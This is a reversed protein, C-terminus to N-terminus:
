KTTISQLSIEGSSLIHTHDNEVVVLEGTETIRKAIGTHTIGKQVFTVKKGLVLSRRRYEELYDSQEFNNTISFFENIVAAILTNRNILSHGDSFLSTAKEQLDDPFQDQPIAFNLGVGIIISSITQTEIDITAESLIGCVKKNALFLDNVWKIDLHLSTLKEVARAVSVAAILTYQTAEKIAVNPQLLLSFYIGQGSPATFFPRGFRGVTETQYNAVLLFASDLTDSTHNKLERNTSGIRDVTKITLLPKFPKSISLSIAEQSLTNNPIYQYGKQTSSSIQHGEKKLLSVAKWISTRSLSLQQAIKEGSLFNPSNQILLTLVSTKTSM